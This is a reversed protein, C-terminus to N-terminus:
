GSARSVVLAPRPAGPPSAPRRGTRLSRHGVPMTVPSATRPIISRTSRRVGCRPDVDLQQDDQDGASPASSALGILHRSANTWESACHDASIAAAVIQRSLPRGSRAPTMNTASRSIRPSKSCSLRIRTPSQNQTRLPRNDSVRCNSLDACQLIWSLGSRGSKGRKMVVTRRSTPRSM